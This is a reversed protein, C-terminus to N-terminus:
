NAAALNVALVLFLLAAIAAVILGFESYTALTLSALFCSRARLRFLLLIFFFLLAKLPLLLCLAAIRFRRFLQKNSKSM